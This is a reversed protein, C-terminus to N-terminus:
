EPRGHRAFLATSEVRGGAARRIEIRETLWQKSSTPMLLYMYNVYDFWGRDTLRITGPESEDALGGVLSSDLADLVEIPVASWDVRTRDLSGRYPFGVVGREAAPGTPFGVRIEDRQGSLEVYRRRDGETYVNMGPLISFAGAGFGLVIDDAYGYVIDHYLFTRHNSVPHQDSRSRPAPAFCYGSVPLYGATGLQELIRHRFRRRTAADLMPASLLDAATHLRPQAALNNLPYFDITSSGLARALEIDRLLEAETQGPLGYIVDVNTTTFRENALVATREIQAPSATLALLRRLRPSLTQVGFSVRSVGVDCLADMVQESASKAELECSFEQVRSLDIHEALSAGLRRLDDPSVVSPTGGGIFVADPRLVGGLGDTVTRIEQILANVYRTVETDDRFRGRSFPCFSCITDCFPIHLYLAIRRGKAAMRGIASLPVREGVPSRDFPYYWNFLPLQHQFTMRGTEDATVGLDFVPSTAHDPM